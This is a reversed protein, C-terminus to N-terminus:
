LMVTEKNPFTDGKCLPHQDVDKMERLTKSCVGTFQEGFHDLSEDFDQLAAAAATTRRNTDSDRKWTREWDSM